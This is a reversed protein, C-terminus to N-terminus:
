ALGEPAADDVEVDLQRFRAAVRGSALVTVEDDLVEGLSKDFQDHLDVRRRRTRLRAVPAVRATRVLARVLDVAAPPPQGAEGEFRHEDRRLQPGATTERGLMVVWGDDGRYLLTVGARALRLDPTDHYTLEIVTPEAEAAVIGDALGNLQPLHFGPPSSLSEHSSM